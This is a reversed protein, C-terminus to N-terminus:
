ADIEVMKAKMRSLSEPSIGLYSAIYKQPVLTMLEPNTKQIRLFREYPEYCTLEDIRSVEQLLVSETLLRGIREYKPLIDYLKQADIFRLVIVISKSLSQISHMSPSKCILSKINAIFRPSSYLNYTYDKGNITRFTRIAGSILFYLNESEGGERDLIEKEGYEAVSLFTNLMEWELPELSVLSNLHSRFFDISNM